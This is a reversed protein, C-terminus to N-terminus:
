NTLNHWWVLLLESLPQTLYRQTGTFTANGSFTKNGSITQATNTTVYNTPIDSKLALTPIINDIKVWNDNLAQEISFVETADLDTDYCFLSLNDTNYAM